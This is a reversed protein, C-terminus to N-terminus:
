AGVAHGHQTTPRPTRRLLTLILMGLTITEAIISILAEPAPQLGRETFGLIGITRSLTFGILAGAALAAAALRLIVPGSLLLLAAVTFSGSAQLLFAPGVWRIVRYGHVYLEAHVYGSIALSATIPLRWILNM